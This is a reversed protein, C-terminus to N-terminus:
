VYCTCDQRSPNPDAYGVKLACMFDNMDGSGTGWIGSPGRDLDEKNVSAPGCWTAWENRFGKRAWIQACADPGVKISSVDDCGIGKHKLDNIDHNGLDFTASRGRKETFDPHQFLVVTRQYGGDGRYWQAGSDWNVRLGINDQSYISGRDKGGWSKHIYGDRMVWWRDSPEADGWGGDLNVDWQLECKSPHMVVKMQRPAAKTWANIRTWTGSMSPCKAYGATNTGDSAEAALNLDTANTLDGTSSDKILLRKGFAPPNLLLVSLSSAYLFTLM